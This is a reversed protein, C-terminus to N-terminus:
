NFTVPQRRHTGVAFLLPLSVTWLHIRGQRAARAEGAVVRRACRAVVANAATTARAVSRASPRTATSRARCAGRRPCSEDVGVRSSSAIPAQGGRSASSADHRRTSPFPARSSVSAASEPPRRGVDEGGRSILRPPVRARRLGAVGWLLRRTCARCLSGCDHAVVAKM